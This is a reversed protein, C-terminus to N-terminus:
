WEFIFKHIIPSDPFSKGTLVWRIAYFLMEIPFTIMLVPVLLIVKILRKTM